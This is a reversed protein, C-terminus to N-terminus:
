GRGKIFFFVVLNIYSQFKYSVEVACVIKRISNKVFSNVEQVM